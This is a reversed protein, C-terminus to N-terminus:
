DSAVRILSGMKFLDAEADRRLHLGKLKSYDWLRKMSRIHSPVYGAYGRAIDTKIDRMEKRSAGRMSAGRNFVLSTLAANEHPHLRTTPIDFAKRARESYTPITIEYFVHSAQDWTVRVSNKVRPLGNYYADRGKLGRVKKLDRVMSATLVGKFAAGIEAESMHGLDIGFGVTVGSQTSRWAPVTPKMLRSEYYARGGVEYYIIMDVGKDSVPLDTPCSARGHVISFFIILWTIIIWKTKDVPPMRHWGVDFVKGFDRGLTNKFAWRLVLWGILGAIAVTMLLNFLEVLGYSASFTKYSAESVINTSGEVLEVGTAEAESKLQNNDNFGNVLNIIFLAVYFGAIAICAVTIDRRVSNCKSM